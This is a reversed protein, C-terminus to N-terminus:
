QLHCISTFVERRGSLLEIHSIYELATDLAM